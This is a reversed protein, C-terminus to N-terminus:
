DWTPRKAPRSPLHPSERLRPREVASGTQGGLPDRSFQPAERADGARPLAGSHDRVVAGVEFEAETLGSVGNAFGCGAEGGVPNRRARRLDVRAIFERAIQPGLHAVEAKESHGDFLRKATKPQSVQFM